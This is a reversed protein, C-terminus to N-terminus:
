LSKSFSIFLSTPSDGRNWCVPPISWTTTMGCQFHGSHPSLSGPFRLNFYANLIKKAEKKSVMMDSTKTPLFYVLCNQYLWQNINWINACKFILLRVICKKWGNWRHRGVKSISYDEGDYFRKKGKALTWPNAQTQCILLMRQACDKIIRILQIIVKHNLWVKGFVADNWHHNVAAYWNHGWFAQLLVELVLIWDEWCGHM